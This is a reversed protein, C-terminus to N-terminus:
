ESVPVSKTTVSEGEQWRAASWLLDSLRNLYPVVYSNELALGVASREARRCVTRAVDLRASVEDEGPVVFEKPMEFKESLEDIMSELGEVMEKTVRSNEDLNDIKEPNCALEAMLLWLEREIKVLLTSLEEGAVARALGIFAQTEDVDGYVEPRSDNKSVRGGYLLDTSGDDGRRTYVKM